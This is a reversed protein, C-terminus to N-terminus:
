GKGNKGGKAEEMRDLVWQPPSTEIVEHELVEENEGYLNNIKFRYTKNESRKFLTIIVSGNPQLEASMDNFDGGYLRKLGEIM